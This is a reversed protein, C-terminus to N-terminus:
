NVSEKASSAPRANAEGLTRYGRVTDPTLKALETLTTGIQSHYENWDLMM